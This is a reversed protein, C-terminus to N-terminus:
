EDDTDENPKVADWTEKPSPPLDPKPVPVPQLPPSSAGSGGYGGGGGGPRRAAHSRRHRIRRLVFQVTFIQRLFDRHRADLLQDTFRRQDTDNLEGSDTRAWEAL